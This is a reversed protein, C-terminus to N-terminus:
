KRSEASQASEGGKLLWEKFWRLFKTLYRLTPEAIISFNICLLICRNSMSSISFFDSVFLMCFILGVTCGLWLWMKYVDMPKCIEFVIMLGVISLLITSATAIDSREVSFINGFYIM